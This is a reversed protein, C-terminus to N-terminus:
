NNNVNSFLNPQELFEAEMNVHPDKNYPASSSGTIVATVASDHNSNNSSPLLLPNNSEGSAETFSSEQEVNAHV